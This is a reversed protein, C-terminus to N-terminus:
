IVPARKDAIEKGGGWRELNLGKAVAEATAQKNSEYLVVLLM